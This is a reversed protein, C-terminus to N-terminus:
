AFRPAGSLDRRLESLRALLRRSQAIVSRSNLLAEETAIVAEQSQAHIASAGARHRLKQPDVHRTGDWLEYLDCSDSCAEYILTAVMLAAIDDEADFEQCGRIAYSYKCDEYIITPCVEGRTGALFAQTEARLEAASLFERRVRSRLYLRYTTM